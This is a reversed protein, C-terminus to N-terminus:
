PAKSSSSTTADPIPPKPVYERATKVTFTKGDSVIRIDGHWATAYVKAGVPGYMKEAQAAPSRIPSGPYDALCSAIVIKPSTGAAFEPSTNFGHHPATVITSRLKAPPTNTLMFRQGVGYADGPFLFVNGGHQVRLVLSNGNLLSHDSVKKPDSDLALLEKPPSLAEINLDKDWPLTQGASIALYEAGREKALARLKRYDETQARGEYGSDVVQKVPWNTLWWELGGYHDAHPHSIAIGDIKTIGKSKLFPAVVDRAAIYDTKKDVGGTDILYVKGSPTELVTALGHVKMDFWTVTLKGPEAASASLAAAILIWVLTITKLFYTKM